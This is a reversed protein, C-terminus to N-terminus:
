DKIISMEHWIYDALTTLNIFRKLSQIHNYYEAEKKKVTKHRKISEEVDKFTSDLRSYRFLEFDKIEHEITKKVSEPLILNKYYEKEALLKNYKRKTVFM